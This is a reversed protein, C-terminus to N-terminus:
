RNFFDDVKKNENYIANYIVTANVKLFQRGKKDTIEEYKGNRLVVSIKQKEQYMKFTIKKDDILRVIYGYAGEIEFFHGRNENFDVIYGSMVTGAGRDIIRKLIDQPSQELSLREGLLKVLSGELGLTKQKDTVEEHNGETVIVDVMEGVAVIDLMEFIRSRSRYSYLNNPIFIRELNQTIIFIGKDSIYNVIGKQTSLIKKSERLFCSHLLSEAENINGLAVLRKKKSKPSVVEKLDTILVPFLQGIMRRLTLPQFFSAVSQPVYIRLQSHEKKLPQCIAIDEFFVSKRDKSLTKASDFVGIVRCAITSSHIKVEKERTEQNMSWEIKKVYKELRQPIKEAIQFWDEDIELSSSEFQSILPVGNKVVRKVDSHAQAIEKIQKMIGKRLIALM